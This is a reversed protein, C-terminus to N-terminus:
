VVNTRSAGRDATLRARIDVRMLRGSESDRNQVSQVGHRAAFVLAQGPPLDMVSEFASEPLPIKASLYTFWDRSHFRHLIAVSVLELLEPALAKPSQTSVALRLGDHRMLRATNVIASSLGDSHSGDMFKHAEDLALLKGCGGPFSAARFQEVLVQFIGNAEDSALLPDTLDAVVVIGPGLEELVDSGVARLSDNTASESVLAELLAARQLLPAAQGPVKCAERVERIFGQFEPVQAARQYKRLLELMSAVYLQSDGEKIRMLRKIHDASLSAWRFLLPKVICSNGYFKLRQHYYSPSVLVVLRSRPLTYTSASPTQGRLLRQLARDPEILGTAECISAVNQDYHLVLATVPRKLRVLPQASPQDCQIICSELVVGMTHSKGSGQVGVTCLCFPEHTNLYVPESNLEGADPHLLGLLASEPFGRSSVADGLSLTHGTTTKFLRASFFHDTWPSNSRLSVEKTGGDQRCKDEGPQITHTSSMLLRHSRADDLVAQMANKDWEEDNGASTTHWAIPPDSLTIHQERGPDQSKHDIDDGDNTEDCNMDSGSEADIVFRRRVEEAYTPLDDLADQTHVATPIAVTSRTTVPVFRDNVVRVRSDAELAMAVGRRWSKASLGQITIQKSMQKLQKMDVFSEESQLLLKNILDNSVEMAWRPSIHAHDKNEASVHSNSHPHDKSEASVHSNSHPRSSLLGLSRAPTPFMREKVFRIRPDSRLISKVASRFEKADLASKSLLGHTMCHKFVKNICHVHPIGETYAEPKAIVRAIVIEVAERAWQSPPVSAPLTPSSQDHSHSSM